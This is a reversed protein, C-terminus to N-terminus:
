LAGYRTVGTWRLSRVLAVSLIYLANSEAKAFSLSLTKPGLQQLSILYARRLALDFPFRRRMMFLLHSTQFSGPLGSSRMPLPSALRIIM